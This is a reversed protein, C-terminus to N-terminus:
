EANVNEQRNLQEIARYVRGELQRIAKGRQGTSIKRNLWASDIAIITRDFASLLSLCRIQLKNQTPIMLVMPEFGYAIDSDLTEILKRYTGGLRKILRETKMILAEQVATLEGVDTDLDLVIQDALHQARQSKVSLTVYPSMCDKKALAEM